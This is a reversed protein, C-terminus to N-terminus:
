SPMTFPKLEDLLLKRYQEAKFHVADIQSVSQLEILSNTIFAEDANTIFHTGISSEITKLGLQKAKELVHHRMVGPLAGSEISPTYIVNDKVFFINAATACVLHGQTNLLLADAFSREKAQARALISELYNLTKLHSLGSRENRVYQSVTLSLAPPPKQDLPVATILLLPKCHEPLALGRSESSGRTVTIRVCSDGHTLQNYELLSRILEPINELHHPAPIKLQQLGMKLRNLHEALAFPKGSYCRLTEFLGDGLLFGRDGADILGTEQPIVGENLFVFKSDM